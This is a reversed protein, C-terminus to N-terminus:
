QTLRDVVIITTATASIIGSFVGIWDVFAPKAIVELSVIDDSELKFRRLEAPYAENYKHKYNFITEEGTSEDFRSISIEIRLENWDARQGINRQGVPGRAYSILEGVTTGRPIIYRGPANVDGWVSLTDAIQGPEAIRVFGESLRFLMSDTTQADAQQTFPVIFFLTLLVSTIFTKM